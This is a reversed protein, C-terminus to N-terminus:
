VSFLILVYINQLSFMLLYTTPLNEKTAVLIALMLHRIPENLRRNLNKQKM